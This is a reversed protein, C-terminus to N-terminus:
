AVAVVCGTATVTGEAGVPSVAAATEEDCILKLQVALEDPLGVNYRINRDNVDPVPNLLISEVLPEVVVYLLVVPSLGFM